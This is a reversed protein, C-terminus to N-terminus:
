YFLKSVEEEKLRCKMWVYLYLDGFFREFCVYVYLDSVLIEIIKNIGDYFLLYFMFVFIEWFKNVDIIKCVFEIRVEIDVVKYFLSGGLREM